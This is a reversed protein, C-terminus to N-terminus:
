VGVATNLLGSSSPVISPRSSRAFAISTGSDVFYDDHPASRRANLQLLCTLSSYRTACPANACCLAPFFIWFPDPSSRQHVIKRCLTMRGDRKRAKTRLPAEQKHETYEKSFSEYPDNIRTPQCDDPTLGGGSTPPNILFGRNRLMIGGVIPNKGRSDALRTTAMFANLRLSVNKPPTDTTM